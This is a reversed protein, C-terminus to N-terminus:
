DNFVPNVFPFDIDYSPAYPQSLSPRLPMKKIKTVESLDKLFYEISKEQPEMGEIVPYKKGVIYERHNCSQNNCKHSYQPPNSMFGINGIEEYELYGIKCKPCKYVKKVTKIEIIEESM